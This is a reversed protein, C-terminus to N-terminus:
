FPLDEDATGLIPTTSTPQKKKNEPLNKLGQELRDLEEDSVSQKNPITGKGSVAGEPKGTTQFPIGLNQEISVNTAILTPISVRRAGQQEVKIGLNGFVSVRIQTDVVRLMDVLAEDFVLIQFTKSFDRQQGVPGAKRYQTLLFSVFPKKSKNTTLAKISFRVIGSLKFQNTDEGVKSFAKNEM